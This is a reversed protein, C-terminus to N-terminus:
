LLSKKKQFATPYPMKTGDPLHWWISSGASSIECVCFALSAMQAKPPCSETSVATKGLAVSPCSPPPSALMIHFLTEYTGFHILCYIFVFPLVANTLPFHCIPPFFLERESSIYETHVKELRWLASLRFGFAWYETFSAFDLASCCLICLHYAAMNFDDHHAEKYRPRSPTKGAEAEDRVESWHVLCGIATCSFVSSSLSQIKFLEVYGTGSREKWLKEIPELLSACHSMQPVFHLWVRNSHRLFPINIRIPFLRTMLNLSSSPFHLFSPVSTSTM